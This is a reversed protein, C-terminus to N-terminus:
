SSAAAIQSTSIPVILLRSLRARELNIRNSPISSVASRGTSRATRRAPYRRRERRAYRVFGDIMQFRAINAARVSPILAVACNKRSVGACAEVSAERRDFLGEM